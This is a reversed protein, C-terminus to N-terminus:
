EADPFDPAVGAMKNFYNAFINLAVNAIIEVIEEDNFGAQRVRELDGASAEGRTMVIRFAFRLAAEERPDASTFRRCATLDEESIGLATAGATHLSICYRSDNVEAVALAILERLRGDLAGGALADSFKLYGELVAPSRVMTRMMNSITSGTKQIETLLKKTKGTATEPNVAKIRQM